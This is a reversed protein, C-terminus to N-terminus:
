WGTPTTWALGRVDRLTWTAPWRTKLSLSFTQFMSRAPSATGLPQPITESHLVAEESTEIVPTDGTISAFAAPTICLLDNGVASSAFVQFKDSDRMRLHIKLARGLSCVFVLPANAAVPSVAQALNAMDEIFAGWPDTTSSPSIASIGARLGAPADATAANSGFLVTDLAVGLSRSLLDTIVRESNASTALEKTLIVIAALKKGDLIAPPALAAQLVPIVAGPAVFGGNGPQVVFAPVRVQGDADFRLQLGAQFLGAGASQGSLAAIFDAVVSHSLEAAWNVQGPTAPSTGARAVYVALRDEPWRAALHSVPDLSKNLM